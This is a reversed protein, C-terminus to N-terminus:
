DIQDLVVIGSFEGVRYWNLEVQLARVEKHSINIELPFYEVHKRTLFIFM